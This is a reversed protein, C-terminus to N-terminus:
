RRARSRHYALVRAMFDARVGADRLRGEDEVPLDPFREILADAFLGRGEPRASGGGDHVPVGSIGCSPSRAKLIYGSLDQAALEDARRRSFARMSTTLDAGTRPVMLRLEDDGAELRMVDRPAGLGLEIEPCVPVWEVHPGFADILLADRKHGGDFRVNEGLLCSSIGIRVPREDVDRM